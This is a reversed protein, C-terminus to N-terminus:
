RHWLHEETSDLIGQCTREEMEADCTVLAKALHGGYSTYIVACGRIEERSSRPGVLEITSPEVILDQEPSPQQWGQHVAQNYEKQGTAVAHAFIQYILFLCHCGHPEWRLYKDLFTDADLQREAERVFIGEEKALKKTTAM